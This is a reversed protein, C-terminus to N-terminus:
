EEPAESIQVDEEIGRWRAELSDIMTKYSKLDHDKEVVKKELAVKQLKIEQKEDHLAEVEAELQHIWTQLTLSHRSVDKLRETLGDIQKQYGHLLRDYEGTSIIVLNGIVM